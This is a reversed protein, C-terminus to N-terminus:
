VCCRLMTALGKSSTRKRLVYVKLQEELYDRVMRMHAAYSTINSAILDAAQLHIIVLCHRYSKM